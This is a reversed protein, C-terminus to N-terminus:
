IKARLALWWCMAVPCGVCVSMRTAIPRIRGLPHSIQSSACSVQGLATRHANVVSHIWNRKAPDVGCAFVQILVLYPWAHQLAEMVFHAGESGSCLSGWTRQGTCTRPRQRCLLRHFDAAHESALSDLLTGEHLLSACAVQKSRVVVRENVDDDNVSAARQLRRRKPDVVPVRTEAM